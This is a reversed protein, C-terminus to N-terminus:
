FKLGLSWFFNQSQLTNNGAATNYFFSSNWRKAFEVTFGVGTYLFDRLPATSWDAFNPSIGGLNGNIAYPNQLFEHQWSLSVQPIVLIDPRAQWNYAAHAGVSSLMSSSNWGASNFDISQAGTEKFSNVGLYTYQLSATPGFTFKGKQIDYGTALMTDLEGAGPSSNATRNMGTYQIVRTAQFNHYAGGALANVFFGKGDVQGYSGFVGFRVANDLLTSGTGLGSGNAGSKTYTGQYGTYIGSAFNKNWKYTLGTTVGGSQSNYGPLMNGSSANAFIGNMDVFMGWHNDAGPRLIDKSPDMVSEGDGQGELFPTTDAFGNMSFGGGEALRVGWLRQSLEMNQANANNFAITAVQQYFPIPRIANFAQNYQSATLRDLSTAVVLQDGSTANIFSNLTTAVNTQNQNQAMQTYNQPAVLLSGQTNNNTLLFRGRYGSPMDILSFAGTIGGPASLFNYKDGFQLTYGNAPSVLLTGALTISGTADLKNSTTSGTPQLVFFGTSTQTFNGNVTLTGTPNGPALVGSNILNGTLTGAGTMASGQQVTLTNSVTMVGNLNLTSNNSVAVNTSITLNGTGTINLTSNTGFQISPYTITNSVTNTGNNPVPLTSLAIWLTNNSLTLSYNSVGTVAFQNTSFNTAGNNTGFSLLRTPSSVLTAGTLDFYNTGIIPFVTDTVDIYYGATLDNIAIISNTSSSNSWNLTSITLLSNLTLAGGALTFEGSGLANTSAVRLGGSYMVTGNTYTNNGSLTTTGSGVRRLAINGAIAGAYTTNTSGSLTLDVTPGPGNTILNVANGSAAIGAITQNFGNMSYRNTVSGDTNTGLVLVTNTPLANVIGNSLTSGVIVYTPGVYNNNGANLTVTANSVVLDSNFSDAAGSGTIQGNVAFNGGALVLVTGSKSLTGNLALTAGSDNDIVGTGNTVNMSQTINTVGSRAQLTGNNALYVNTGGGFSNTNTIALTGNTTVAFSGTFNNLAAADLTMTGTGVQAIIGNGTINTSLNTLSLTGSSGNQFIGNNTVVGVVSATATGSGMQLTANTILTGGSYSMASNFVTTGGNTNGVANSILAWSNTGADTLSAAVTASNSPAFVYNDAQYTGGSLAGGTVQFSDVAITSNSGGSLTGGTVLLNNITTTGSGQVDLTGSNVTVNNNNSPITNTGTNNTFSPPLYYNLAIGGSNTSWFFMNASFGNTVSGPALTIALNTGASVNTGSMIQWSNTMGNTWFPSTSNVAGALNLYFLGSTVSLSGNTLVLPATYNIGPTNTTNNLLSWLYASGSTTFNLNGSIMMSGTGTPALTGGAVNVSGTTLTGSGSLTSGTNVTVSSSNSISGNVVMTGANLVTTGIYTNNGSLITTGSGAQTLGGLGVITGGLTIQSGSANTITANTSLGLANSITHSGQMTMISPANSGQVLSITGSGAITYASANSFTLTNLRVNTNNTVVGGNGTGFTATDNVSLAGDLGPTGGNADWNALNTWNGSGATWTSEGSYVLGSVTLFNTGLQALNGSLSSSDGYVIGIVNTFSGVGQNTGFTLIANSFSGEAVNSVAGLSLNNSSNTAETLLAVRFGAANSMGILNTQANTYGVHLAQLTFNTTSLVNAAHAFINGTVVLNTTGNTAAGALTSDDYFTVTVNSSFTGTGGGLANTGLTLALSASANSALLSANGLTLDGSADNTTGLAVRFGSANAIDLNTAVTGTYGVIV